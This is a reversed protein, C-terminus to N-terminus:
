GSGTKKDFGGEGETMRLQTSPDTGSEEFPVGWFFLIENITNIRDLFTGATGAGATGFILGDFNPLKSIQDFGEFSTRRPAPM